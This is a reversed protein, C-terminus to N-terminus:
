GVLGDVIRQYIVDAAELCRADGTAVLDAYVLPLPVVAAAEDFAWFREMLEVPGTPDARLRAEVLLRPPVKATYLTVTEPRLRGTIREAAVEGGLQAAHKGLELDAWRRKRDTQFRGLTLKPRLTRAYAESWQKLLREGQLLRRRGKVDAVFGLQQLDTMVWGVTGHAVCAREAITRYPDDVWEPHCLLAFIVKLGGTRFARTAPAGAAPRVAPRQGTVWVYLPPQDLYANGTADLFAIEQAKLTETMPPTLYDAVLLGPKERRQLQHLVAGLTAPRLGRKIEAVYTRAQRGGGIRVVADGQGAKMPGREIQAQIGLKRATDLAADLLDKDATKDM